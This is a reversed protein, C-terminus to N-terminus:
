QKFVVTNMHGGRLRKCQQCRGVVAQLAAKLTTTPIQRVSRRLRAKLQRLTHVPKRYVDTKLLGWLFFDPVTLDPSRPPWVVSAEKSIVRNNFNEQLLSIAAKSTHATAGDQQFWVRRLSRRRARLAPLFLSTLMDCYRRSTVTTPQGDQEFFFPGIIGSSSVACWATVAGPFQSKQSTLQPNEESWYRCNQKSVTGDLCFKAEDSMWLNNLFCHQREVKELLWDCWELRRAKDGRKLKQILQIKYPFLGLDVKM